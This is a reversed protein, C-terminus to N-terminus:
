FTYITDFDYGYSNSNTNISNTQRTTAASVFGEVRETFKSNTVKTTIVQELKQSLQEFLTEVQEKSFKNIIIANSDDISDIEPKGFVTNVAAKFEIEYGSMAYEAVIEEKVKDTGIGKSTLTIDMGYKQNGMSAALAPAMELKANIVRTDGNEEKTITYIVYGADIEIKSDSVTITIPVAIGGVGSTIVIKSVGNEPKYVDVTVTLGGLSTKSLSKEMDKVMEEVNAAGAQSTEIMERVDKNNYIAKFVKVVIEKLENETLTLRVYGDRKEYSAGKLSETLVDELDAKLKEISTSSTSVGKEIYEAAKAFTDKINDIDKQSAGLNTLLSEIDDLDIAIMKATVDSIALGMKNDDAVLKFDINESSSFNLGLDLEAKEEEVDKKLGITVLDDLSLKENTYKANISVSGDISYSEKELKEAYSKTKDYDSFALMKTQAEAIYKSYLQEPTKLLDTLFWIAAFAAGAVIVLVLLVVLFIKTGKKM